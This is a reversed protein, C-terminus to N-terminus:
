AVSFGAPPVAAGVTAPTLGFVPGTPPPVWTVILPALKVPVVPTENPPTAAEPTETALAVEIVAIEGACAAPVTSTVTVEGAPVLADLADSLNEYTAPCYVIASLAEGVVPPVTLPPPVNAAPVERVTVATGL